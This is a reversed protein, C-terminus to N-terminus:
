ACLPLTHTEDVHQTHTPPTNVDLLHSSHQLGAGCGHVCRCSNHPTTKNHHRPTTDRHLQEVHLRSSTTTDHRQHLPAAHNDTSNGKKREKKELYYPQELCFSDTCTPQYFQSSLFLIKRSNQQDFLIKKRGRIKRSNHQDFLIKM